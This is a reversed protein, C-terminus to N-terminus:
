RPGVNTIEKHQKCFWVKTKPKKKSSTEGHEEPEKAICGCKKCALYWWGHERHVKHIKAYVICEFQQIIILNFLM